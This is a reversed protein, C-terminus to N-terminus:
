SSATVGSRLVSAEAAPGLHISGNADDLLGVHTTDAIWHTSNTSPPWGTQEVGLDRHLRSSGTSQPRSNTM